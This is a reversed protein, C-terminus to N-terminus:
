AAERDNLLALVDATVNALAADLRADDKPCVAFSDAGAPREVRVAVARGCFVCPLSALRKQFGPLRGLARRSSGAALTEVAAAPAVTTKM